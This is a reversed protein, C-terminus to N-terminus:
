GLDLGDRDPAGIAVDAWPNTPHAMGHNLGRAWDRRVATPVAFNVPYLTDDVIEVPFADAIKAAVTASATRNVKITPGSADIRPAQFAERLSMRYDVLYAVLQTLAPVIQRGGAAGIAITPMGNQTLVLPCMNALPRAGAQITNPTGPRPDFWMMGNNMLMGTRPLTVKSGFRSLLTNTLSVMSGESDVVSIHSTCGPDPSSAAHGLTTLRAHHAARIAAAFALASEADPEERGMPMHELMGLAALLTPGGSLGPMAHVTMDRYRGILPEVWRPTYGALDAADIPSGGEAL